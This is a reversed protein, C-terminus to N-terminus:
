LHGRDRDVVRVQRNLGKITDEAGAEQKARDNVNIYADRLM